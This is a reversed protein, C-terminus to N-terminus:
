APTELATRTWDVEQEKASFGLSLQVEIIASLGSSFM